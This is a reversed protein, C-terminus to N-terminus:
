RDSSPMLQDEEDISTLEALPLNHGDDDQDDDRFDVQPGEDLSRTGAGGGVDDRASRIILIPSCQLSLDVL